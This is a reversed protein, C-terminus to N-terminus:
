GARAKGVKRRVNFVVCFVGYIYIYVSISLCLCVRTYMYIYVCVYRMMYPKTQIVNLM